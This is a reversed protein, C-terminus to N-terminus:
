ISRYLTNCKSTSLMFESKCYKSLATSLLFHVKKQSTATTKKIEIQEERVRVRKRERENRKENFKDIKKEYVFIKLRIGAMLFLYLERTEIETMTNNPPTSCTRASQLMSNFLKRFNSFQFSKLHKELMRYKTAWKSYIPFTTKKRRKVEKNMRSHSSFVVLKRM